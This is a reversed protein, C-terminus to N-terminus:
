VAKEAIMRLRKYDAYWKGNRFLLPRVNNEVEDLIEERVKEEVGEFLGSYFMTIFNKLGNEGSLETDRDFYLAYRVTFSSKELLSAYEAVSPFFTIQKEANSHYSRKFLSKKINDLIVAANDKGGMEFILRGGPKLSDYIKNLFIEQEFVWHFVANSFVKDFKNHYDMKLADINLFTIDPYKKKAKSIMKASADIGIIKKSHTFIENTLEGTGCGLDLIEDDKEPNLLELLDRGYNYVFSHNSRYLDPNWLDKM